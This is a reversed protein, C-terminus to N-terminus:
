IEARFSPTKRCTPYIPTGNLALQVSPNRKNEQEQQQREREQQQRELERWAQMDKEFQKEMQSKETM